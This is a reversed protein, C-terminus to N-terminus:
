KVWLKGAEQWFDPIGKAEKMWYWWEVGWLYVEDFGAQKVYSINSRFQDPNMSSYQQALPYDAMAGDVWPEMQLETVIVKKVGTLKEILASKYYYYAPPLPWHWFGTYQNWVVRYLTTGLVDEGATAASYWTSLEGSDTVVVQRSDLQKVLFIEQKLEEKDPPPCVGFWGVLPENEVQWGIVNNYTKYRAVTLNVFELLEKRQEASSLSNYWAPQACEPWRPLKRGVTLLVKAEKEQAMKMQWDLESWDYVGRESEMRNWYATLRLHDVGLDDLAAQLVVKPDLGLSQANQPDFSVGWAVKEKSFDLFFSRAGLALLLVLVATFLLKEILHRM